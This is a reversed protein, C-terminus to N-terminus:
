HLADPRYLQLWALHQGRRSNDHMQQLAAPDALLNPVLRVADRVVVYTPPEVALLVWELTPWLLLVHAGEAIARDRLARLQQCGQVAPLPLLATADDDMADLANHPLFMPTM